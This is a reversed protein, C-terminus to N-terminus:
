VQAYKERYDEDTVVTKFQGTELSFLLWDGTVAVTYNGVVIPDEVQVAVLIASLKAVNPM